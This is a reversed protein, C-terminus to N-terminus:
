ATPMDGQGAYTNTSRRRIQRGLDDLLSSAGFRYLSPALWQAGLGLAGILACAFILSESGTGALLLNLDPM